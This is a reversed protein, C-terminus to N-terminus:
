FFIEGYYPFNLEIRGPGCYLSELRTDKYFNLFELYRQNCSIRNPPAQLMTVAWITFAARWQFRTWTLLPQALGCSPLLAFCSACLINSMQLSDAAAGRWDGSTLEGGPSGASPQHRTVLPSQKIIVGSCRVVLCM